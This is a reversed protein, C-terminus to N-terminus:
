FRFRVRMTPAPPIQAPRLRGRTLPAAFPQRAFLADVGAGLAAGGAAGIGAWMLTSGWCPQDGGTDDLANCLFHVFGGLAVGGIVGGIIAGNKLSDDGPPLFRTRAMSPSTPLAEDMRTLSVVQAALPEQPAPSDAPPTAPQSLTAALTLALLSTM